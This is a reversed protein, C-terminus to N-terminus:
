PINLNVCIQHTDSSNFAAVLPMRPEEKALAGGVHVYDMFSPFVDPFVGPDM